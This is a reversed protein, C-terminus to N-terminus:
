RDQLIFYRDRVGGGRPIVWERSGAPLVGQFALAGSPLYGRIRAAQSLRPYRLLIGEGPLAQWTLAAADPLGGKVAIATAAPKMEINWIVNGSGPYLVTQRFVKFGERVASISTGNRPLSDFRFKGQADTQVSAFLVETLPDNTWGYISVKAQGVPLGTASNTVTGTMTAGGASVAPPLCLLALLAIRAGADKMAKMAMAVKMEPNEM